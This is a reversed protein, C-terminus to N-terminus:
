SWWTIPVGSYRGGSAPCQSAAGLRSTNESPVVSYWSQVCSKGRMVPSRDIWSTTGPLSAGSSRDRSSQAASSGVGAVAKRGHIM